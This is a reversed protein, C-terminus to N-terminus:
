VEGALQIAKDAFSTWSYKAKEKKIQAQMAAIDTITFHQAICRAIDAPDKEAVYGLRGHHVVEALGGVNTVLIPQEFHFAIQTVGSQSASHYTQTILDAASFYDQIAAAPIFEDRIVVRGKVGEANLLKEYDSIDDYWEGAVILTLDLKQLLPQAMAQLMLDLGKYKRVLGFFLLYRKRPDLQLRQCAVQRAQITGLNDNIPHPICIRPKQTFSTLEEQVTESMTIFGDFSNVFYRTLAQDGFRQEHPLINDCLALVKTPKKIRRTIAGLAAGLFPLWYRVIVLDPKQSNIYRATALWSLPNVSNVNRVIQLDAPQPDSSYQTKGPFLISPYQVTFTVISADHGLKTLARCLSENTDAIGGRYPYAPGIIIVKM